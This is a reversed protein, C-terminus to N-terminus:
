QKWGRMGDSLEQKANESGFYEWCEDNKSQKWENGVKKFEQYCVGYVDGSLYQDYFRIESEMCKMAQTKSEQNFKGYKEIVKKRTIYVWGVLMTDWEAHGESLGSFSGIKMRLGSHDYLWLPAILAKKSIFALLESNSQNEIKAMGLERALAQLFDRPEKYDHKDGLTYNRYWCVMQSINDWERPNGPNNDWSLYGVIAREGKILVIETGDIPEFKVKFEGEDTQIIYQTTRIIKM